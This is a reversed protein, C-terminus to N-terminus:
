EVWLLNGIVKKRGIYYKSFSTQNFGTSCVINKIYGPLIDDFKVELIHYNHEQLPFVVYNGTIFNDIDYSANINTDITIRINLIPEIFATREYNIIVKPKFNKTIIDVIFEKLLAKDTKWFIDMYDSSFIQNFEKTTLSCKRKHCKGSLKEKKELFLNTSLDNYYRIRWKSRKFDGSEVQKASTNKYDDFYLSHIIYNGNKTSNEDLQLLPSLRSKLLELNCNSLIYKQENRYKKM